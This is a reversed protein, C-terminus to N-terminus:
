RRNIHDLNRLINFFILLFVGNNSSESFLILHLHEVIDINKLKTHLYTGYITIYGLSYIKVAKAKPRMTNQIQNLLINNNFYM